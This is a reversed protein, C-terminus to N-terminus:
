DPKRGASLRRGLLVGATGLAFLVLNSGEPVQTSQNAAAPAAALLTLFGFILRLIM